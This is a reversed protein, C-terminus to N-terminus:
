PLFRLLLAAGNAPQLRAMTQLSAAGLAQKQTPSLTFIQTMHQALTATDTPPYLWGNKGHEILDYASGGKNSGIVPVGQALAAYTTGWADFRAPHLYADSASILAQFDPFDLWEELTVQAHLQHKAILAELVPKEPGKGVIVLRTKLRQATPMEALGQIALDFGKERVLRSGCALLIGGTPVGYKKRLAARKAQLPKLDPLEVLIPLNTLRSAAFNRQTFFEMSRRGVAFVHARSARLIRYFAERVLNKLWGRRVDDAPDDFWMAFPRRMLTLLLLLIKTSPNMWGVMLLKHTRPLTLIQWIFRWDPTTQQYYQAPVVANSLDAKFGYQAAKPQCYWPSLVVDGRAHLAALLVNNHPTAIDQVVTLSTPVVAKAM